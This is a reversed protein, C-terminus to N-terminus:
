LWKRNLTFGCIFYFFFFFSNWEKGSRIKGGLYHGQAAGSLEGGRIPAPLMHCQQWVSVADPDPSDGCGRNGASCKCDRGSIQCFPDPWAPHSKAGETGLSILTYVNFFFFLSFICSLYNWESIFLICLIGVGVGLKIIEWYLGNRRRLPVPSTRASPM